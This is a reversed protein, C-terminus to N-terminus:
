HGTFQGIGTMNLRQLLRVSNFRQEATQYIRRDSIIVDTRLMALSSCWSPVCPYRRISEILM